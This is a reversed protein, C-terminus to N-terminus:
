LVMGSGMCAVCFFFALHRVLKKQQLAARLEKDESNEPGGLILLKGTDEEEAPEVPADEGKAAASVVAAAAAELAEQSLEVPVFEKSWDVVKEKYHDLYEGLVMSVAGPERVDVGHRAKLHTLLAGSHPFGEQGAESGCCHPAFCRLSALAFSPLPKPPAQSFNSSVYSSAYSSVMSSGYLSPDFIESPANNPNLFDRLSVDTRSASDDFNEDDYHEHDEAGELDHHEAHDEQPEELSAAALLGSLSSAGVAIKVAEAGDAMAALSPGLLNPGLVVELLSGRAVTWSLFFFFLLL